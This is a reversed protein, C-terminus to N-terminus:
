SPVRQPQAAIPAKPASKDLEARPLAQLSYFPLQGYGVKLAPAGIYVYWAGADALALRAEYVGGGIEVVASESRRRGPALFHLAMLGSVGAKPSRM